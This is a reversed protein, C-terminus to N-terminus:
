ANLGDDDKKKYKRKREIQVYMQNSIKGCVSKPEYHWIMSVFSQRFDFVSDM